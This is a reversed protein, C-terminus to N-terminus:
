QDTMQQPQVSLRALGNHLLCLLLAGVEDDRPTAAHAADPPGVRVHGHNDAFVLVFVMFKGNVNLAWHESVFNTGGHMELKLPLTIIHRMSRIVFNHNHELLYHITTYKYWNWFYKRIANENKEKAITPGGVPVM